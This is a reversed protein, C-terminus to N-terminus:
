KKKKKKLKPEWDLETEGTNIIEIRGSPEEHQAQEVLSTQGYEYLGESENDSHIQEFAEPPPSPLGLTRHIDLQKLDSKVDELTTLKQRHRTRELSLSDSETAIHAVEDDQLDLIAEPPFLTPLKHILCWEVALVSIDDIFKKSAVKYYAEMYDVALEGGYREMDVEIHKGLQELIRTPYISVHRGSAFEEHGVIARLQKELSKRRREEQVKQVTDTLYHNYTIPHGELHPTLLEKFKVELDSKFPELSGRIVSLIGSATEQVAVHDVILKLIENALGLIESLLNSAIGRWPTCQEVFLEGIVMPNFTGPLERGRSRRIREKALDVFEARSIEDLALEEEDSTTDVIIRQKGQQRMKECFSTLTNQVRARLRKRYGDDTKASGFFSNNYVGDVAAQILATFDRSVQLLYRRQEAVNTRPSGFLRLQSETSSIEMEIDQILAPLQRLIQDKLVDSLRPKLAKVGLQAPNVTTWVGSRFFIEEAEDREASSADRMQYDRNRLVHWGLRFAVDENQALKVYAAESDSGADLADPKTILGLTRIGKPDLERAMETIEQLAFDSKASVVALIISRPNKVYARVMKRVTKADKASQERNGARFLGPLDVMTLHPQYPGSLEVRLIDTSFVKFDSIGMVGKAEDVVKQLDPQTLDIEARFTNLRQREDPSREPGPHISINVAVTVERRLILETAFRTCLNDKTPFTLGSIAELVSSKGASQDGCVVIQPLDVYRSVGRSRLKDIIDLLNRHDESQLAEM